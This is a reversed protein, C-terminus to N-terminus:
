RACDREYLAQPDQGRLSEATDFGLAHLHAAMNPGVGPIKELESKM